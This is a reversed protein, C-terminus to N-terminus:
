PEKFRPLTQNWFGKIKLQVQDRIQEKVRNCSTVQESTYDTPRSYSSNLHPHLKLM